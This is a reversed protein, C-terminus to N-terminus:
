VGACTIWARARTGLTKERSTPSLGQSRLRTKDTRGTNKLFLIKRLFNQNTTDKRCCRSRWSSGYTRWSYHSVHTCFLFWELAKRSRHNRCIVLQSKLRVQCLKRKHALLNNLDLHTKKSLEIDTWTNTPRYSTYKTVSWSMSMESVHWLIKDSLINIKDVTGTAILLRYANGSCKM